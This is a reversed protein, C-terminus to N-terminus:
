YAFAIEGDKITDILEETTYQISFDDFHWMSDFVHLGNEINYELDKMWTNMGLDLVYYEDGIILDKISKVLNLKNTIEEASKPRLIDGISEKILKARM